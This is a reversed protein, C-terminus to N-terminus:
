VMQPVLWVSTVKREHLPNSTYAAKKLGDFVIRKKDHVFVTVFHPVGSQLPKTITTYAFVKYTKGMIDQTLKLNTEPFNKGKESLLSYFFFCPSELQRHRKRLRMKCIECHSTLLITTGNLQELVDDPYHALNNGINVIEVTVLTSKHWAPADLDVYRQCKSNTCMSYRAIEMWKELRGYGNEYESELLDISGRKSKSPVDIKLVDRIWITKAENLKNGVLAVMAHKIAEDMPDFLARETLFDLFGPQHVYFGGLVQLTTDLSCTNALFIMNKKDVIYKQGWSVFPIISTFINYTVNYNRKAPKKFVEEEDKPSKFQLASPIDPVVQAATDWDPEENLPDFKSDENDKEEELDINDKEEDTGTDAAKDHQSESDPIIGLKTEIKQCIGYIFEAQKRMFRSAKQNKVFRHINNKLVGHYQEIPNTTDDIPQIKCIEFICHSIIPFYPAVYTKIYTLIQPSYFSNAPFKRKSAVLEANKKECVAFIKDAFTGFPSRRWFPLNSTLSDLDVSHWLPKHAISSTPDGLGSIRAELADTVLEYGCIMGLDQLRRQFSEMNRCRVFKHGWRMMIEYEKEKVKKSFVTKFQERLAKMVHVRCIHIPFPTANDEGESTLNNWLDLIYLDLTTNAFVRIAATIFVKSFDMEIKPIGYHLLKCKMQKEFCKFYGNLWEYVCDTTNDATIMETLPMHVNKSISRLVVTYLLLVRDDYPYPLAKVIGGTADVQLTFNKDQLQLERLIGMQKKSFLIFKAPQSSQVQIYGPLTRDDFKNYLERKTEAIDLYVDRHHDQESLKKQRMRRLATISPVNALNGAKLLEPDASDYMRCHQTYPMTKAVMEQGQAQKSDKWRISGKMDDFHIIDGDGRVSMKVDHNEKPKKSVTFHWVTECPKRNCTSRIRIFSQDKRSPFPRNIKCYHVTPICFANQNWFFPRIVDMYNKTMKFDSKCDGTTNPKQSLIKRWYDYPIRLTFSMPIKSTDLKEGKIIVPNEKKHSGKKKKMKNDKGNSDNESSSSEDEKQPHGGENTSKRNFKFSTKSDKGRATTPDKATEETTTVDKNEQKSTSPKDAVLGLVKGFMGKKDKQDPKSTKFDEDESDISLSKSDNRKYGSTDKLKQSDQRDDSSKTDTPSLKEKSVNESATAKSVDVFTETHQETKSGKLKNIREPKIESKEGLNISSFQTPRPTDWTDDESSISDLDEPWFSVSKPSCDSKSPVQQFSSRRRSLKSTESQTPVSRYRGSSSHSLVSLPSFAPSPEETSQSDNSDASESRLSSNDESESGTDESDTPPDDSTLLYEYDAKDSLDDEGCKYAYQKELPKEGLNVSDDFIPAISLEGTCFGCVFDTTDTGEEIEACAYHLNRNCRNCYIRKSRPLKRQTKECVCLNEISAHSAVTNDPRSRKGSIKDFENVVAKRNDSWIMYLAIRDKETTARKPFLQAAVAEWIGDKADTARSLLKRKDGGTLEYLIQAINQSNVGLEKWDDM